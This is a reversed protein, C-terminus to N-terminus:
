AGLGSEFVRRLLDATTGADRLSAASCVVVGPEVLRWWAGDVGIVFVIGTVEDPSVGHRAITEEAVARTLEDNAGPELTEAGDPWRRAEVQLAVVARQLAPSGALAAFDPAEGVSSERDVARERVWGEVDSGPTRRRWRAEFALATRWWAAWQEVVDSPESGDLLRSRDPPRHSLPPPALPDDGTDLGLADRVYLALDLSGENSVSLSWSPSGVRRM